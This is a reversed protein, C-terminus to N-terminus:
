EQVCIMQKVEEKQSIGQRIFYRNEMPLKDGSHDCNSEESVDSMVHYVRQKVEVESSVYGKGTVFKVTKSKM